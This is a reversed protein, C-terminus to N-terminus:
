LTSELALRDKKKQLKPDVRFTSKVHSICKQKIHLNNLANIGKWFDPWAKSLFELIVKFFFNVMYQAKVRSWVTVGLLATNKALVLWLEKIWFWVYNLNECLGRREMSHRLQCFFEAFEWGATNWTDKPECTNNFHEKKIIVVMLCNLGVECHEWFWTKEWM